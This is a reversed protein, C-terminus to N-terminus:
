LHIAWIRNLWVVNQPFYILTFGISISDFRSDILSPSRVQLKTCKALDRLRRTSSSMTTCLSLASLSSSHSHWCFTSCSSSHSAKLSSTWINKISCMAIPSSVCSWLMSWLIPLSTSLGSAITPASRKSCIWCSWTSRISASCTTILLQLNCKRDKSLILFERALRFNLDRFKELCIRQKLILCRTTLFFNDM